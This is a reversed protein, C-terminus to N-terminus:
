ASVCPFRKENGLEQKPVGSSPLAGAKCTKLAAEQAIANGMQLKPTLYIILEERNLNTRSDNEGLKSKGPKKNRESKEADGRRRTLAKTTSQGQV